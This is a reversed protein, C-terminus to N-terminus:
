GGAVVRFVNLEAGSELLTESLAARPLVEGKYEVIAENEPVGAKALFEAVTKEETDVAKGQYSIKM